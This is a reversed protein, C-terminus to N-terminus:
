QTRASAEKSYDSTGVGNYARVRYRYRSSPKLGSSVFKTGDTGVTAIQSWNGSGRRREVYFGSENNSRDRWSLKIRSESLAEAKLRSPAVPAATSTKVVNSSDSKGIDNVARVRYRYNTSAAVGRDTYTTRNARVTAIRSWKGSGVKRDIRFKSEDDSNDRWRLKIRSSSEVTATLGSPAASVSMETIWDRFVNMADPDAIHKALPAMMISPDVSRMRVWLASLAPSGLTIVKMAPRGLDDSVPGGVMGTDKLSLSSLLRADWTARGSAGDEGRHCGACNSDLYSRARHELTARRDNLSASTLVRKLNVGAQELTPSLM